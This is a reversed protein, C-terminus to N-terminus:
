WVQIRLFGGKKSANENFYIIEKTNVFIDRTLNTSDTKIETKNEYVFDLGFGYEDSIDLDKKVNSYNSNYDSIFDRIEKLSIKNEKRNIGKKFDDVFGECGGGDWEVDDLSSDSSYIKYFGGSDSNKISLGGGRSVESKVLEGQSNKVITSEMEAYPYENFRICDDGSSSTITITTFNTSIRKTIDSEIKNMLNRQEQKSELVPETATYLFVLFTVFLTFSIIIGVHSGRKGYKKLVEKM